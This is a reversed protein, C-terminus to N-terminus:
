LAPRSFRFCPRERKPSITVTTHPLNAATAADTGSLSWYVSASVQGDHAPYDTALESMFSAIYIDTSSRGGVHLDICDLDAAALKERKGRITLSGIVLDDPINNFHGVRDVRVSVSVDDNEIQIAPGACGALLYAFAIVTKRAAM